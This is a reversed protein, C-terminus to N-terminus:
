PAVGLAGTVAAGATIPVTVNTPQVFPTIGDDDLLPAGSLNAVSGAFEATGPVTTTVTIPATFTPNGAADSGVVVAGVSTLTNASSLSVQVGSGDGTPGNTPNGHDDDFTFTVSESGPTTDVTLGMTGGLRLRGTVAPRLPKNAVAWAEYFKNLTSSIIGLLHLQEHGIAVLMQLQELTEQGVSEGEGM